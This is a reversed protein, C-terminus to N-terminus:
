VNIGNLMNVALVIANARTTLTNTDGVKWSRSGKAVQKILFSKKGAKCVRFAKKGEGGWVEVAETVVTEYDTAYDIAEIVTMM